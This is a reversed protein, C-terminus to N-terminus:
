MDIIEHFEKEVHDAATKAFIEEQSILQKKEDSQIADELESIAADIDTPAESSEVGM